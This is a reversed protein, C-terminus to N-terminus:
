RSRRNKWRRMCRSEDGDLQLDAIELGGVGALHLQVQAPEIPMLPLGGLLRREADDKARSFFSLGDLVQVEVLSADVDGLVQGLKRRPLHELFAQVAGDFGGSAPERQSRAGALDDRPRDSLSRPVPFERASLSPSSVGVGLSNPVVDDALCVLGQASQSVPASRSSTYLPM